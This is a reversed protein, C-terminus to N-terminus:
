CVLMPGFIDVYKLSLIKFYCHIKIWIVYFKAKLIGMLLLDTNTLTIDRYRVTSLGNFM